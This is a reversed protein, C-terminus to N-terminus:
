MLECPGVHVPCCLMLQRHKLFDRRLEFDPCDCDAYDGVIRVAYKSAPRTQSPVIWKGGSEAIRFRDAIDIAKIERPTLDVTDEGEQKAPCRPGIIFNVAQSPTMLVRCTIAEGSTQLMRRPPNTTRLPRSEFERAVFPWRIILGARDVVRAGRR